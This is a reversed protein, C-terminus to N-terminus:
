ARQTQGIGTQVYPLPPCLPAHYHAHGQAGVAAGLSRLDDRGHARSQAYSDLTRVRLGMGARPEDDEFPANQQIGGDM